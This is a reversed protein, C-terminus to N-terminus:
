FSLTAYFAILVMKNLKKELKRSILNGLLQWMGGLNCSWIHIKLVHVPVITKSKKEAKDYAVIKNEKWQRTWVFPSFM